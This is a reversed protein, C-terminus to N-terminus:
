DFDLWSPQGSPAPPIAGVDFNTDMEVQVDAVGKIESEIDLEERTTKEEQEKEKETEEEVAGPEEGDEHHHDGDELGLEPLSEADGKGDLDIECTERNDNKQTGDFMDHVVFEEGSEDNDKGDNDQHDLKTANNYETELCPEGANDGDFWLSATTGGENELGSKVNLGVDANVDTQLSKYDEDTLFIPKSPLDVPNLVEEKLVEHRSVTHVTEDVNARKQEVEHELVKMVKEATNENGNEDKDKYSINAKMLHSFVDSKDDKSKELGIAGVDNFTLERTGAIEEPFFGAHEISGSDKRRKATTARSFLVHRTKDSAASGETKAKASANKESTKASLEGLKKRMEHIRKILEEKEKKMNKKSREKEGQSMETSSQLKMKRLQKRLQCIKQAKRQNEEYLERLEPDMNELHVVGGRRELEEELQQVRLRAEHHMNVAALADHQARQLARQTLVWDAKIEERLRKVMIESEQDEKNNLLVKENQRITLLLARKEEALKAIDNKCEEILPLYSRLRKNTAVNKRLNERLSWLYQRESRLEQRREERELAKKIAMSTKRYHRLNHTVRNNNRPFTKQNGTSHKATRREELLKARLEDNQALFDALEERTTVANVERKYGVATCAAGVAAADSNDDLEEDMSRMMQAAFQPVARNRIGRMRKKSKSASKDSKGTANYTEDDPDLEASLDSLLSLSRKSSESKQLDIESDENESKVDSSRNTRSSSSSRSSSMKSSNEMEVNKEIVDVTGKVENEVESNIDLTSDSKSKESQWSEEKVSGNDFDDSYSASSDDKSSTRSHKDEQIDQKLTDHPPDFLM